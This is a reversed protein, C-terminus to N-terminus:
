AREDIHHAHDAEEQDSYLSFAASILLGGVMGVMGALLAICWISPEM